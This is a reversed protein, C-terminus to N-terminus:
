FVVRFWRGGVKYLRRFFFGKLFGLMSWIGMVRFWGVERGVLKGLGM